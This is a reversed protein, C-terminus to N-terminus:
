DEMFQQSVVSIETAAFTPITGVAMLDSAKLRASTQIIGNTVTTEVVANPAFKWIRTEIYARAEADSDFRQVSYARNGDQIIRLAQAKGYFLFSADTILIFLLFFLPMWLLSEVTAVGDEDKRFRKLPNSRM